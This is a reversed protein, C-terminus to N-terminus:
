YLFAEFLTCERGRVCGGALARKRLGPPPNGLINLTHMYLYPILTFRGGMFLLGLKM